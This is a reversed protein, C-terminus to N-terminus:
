RSVIDRSIKEVSTHDHRRESLSGGEALIGHLIRKPLFHMMSRRSGNRAELAEGRLPLFFRVGSRQPISVRSRPSDKQEM